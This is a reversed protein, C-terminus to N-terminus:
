TIFNSSLDLNKFEATFVTTVDASVVLALATLIFGSMIRQVTM